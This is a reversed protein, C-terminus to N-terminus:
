MSGDLQQFAVFLREIDEGSIGAGSDSVSFRVEVRGDNLSRSQVAVDVRGRETFKIANSLLNLLVQRTRHQDGLMARVTGEAISSGLKLGKGAALPAMIEVCDDVVTKILFPSNEVTVTKSELRSFELVDNLLTLLSRGSVQITKLQARQEPTLSTCALLEAMGI